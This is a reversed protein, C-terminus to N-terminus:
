RSVTADQGDYREIPAAGGPHLRAWTSVNLWKDGIKIMTPRTTASDKAAKVMFGESLLFSTVSPFLFFFFFFFFVKKEKCEFKDKNQRHQTQNTSLVGTVRHIAVAFRKRGGHRSQHAFM